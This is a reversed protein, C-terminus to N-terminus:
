LVLMKIKWMCFSYKGAPIRYCSNKIKKWKFGRKVRFIEYSTTIQTYLIYRYM